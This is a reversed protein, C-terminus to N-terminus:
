KCWGMIHGLAKRLPLASINLNVKKCSSFQGANLSSYFNM